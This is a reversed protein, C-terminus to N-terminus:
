EQIYDSDFIRRMFEHINMDYQLLPKINALSRCRKLVKPIVSLDSDFLMCGHHLLMGNHRYQAAGSIKLGNALIDNHRFELAANLGIYQLIAIIKRSFHELTLAKSDQTIFSYNLNGLDHYVAGGGSNRRIIPIAHSSAFHSDVENDINVFHGVIVSPSNRWLMFVDSNLSM